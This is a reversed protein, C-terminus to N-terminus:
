PILCTTNAAVPLDGAMTAGVRRWGISFTARGAALVNVSHVTFESFPCRSLPCRILPFGGQIHQLLVGSASCFPPLRQHHTHGDPPPPCCSTSCSLERCIKSALPPRTKTGHTHKCPLCPPESRTFLLPQPLITHLPRLADVTALSSVKTTGSTCQGSRKQNSTAFGRWLHM